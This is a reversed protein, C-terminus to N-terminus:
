MGGILTNANNAWASQFSGTVTYTVNWEIAGVEGTAVQTPPSTDATTVIYIEVDVGSIDSLDGANWTASYVTNDAPNPQSLLVSGVQAGNEYLYIDLQDATKGTPSNRYLVRFEQLGAGSTLDGTPSPFSARVISNTSDSTASLWNADPSDPDDDVDTYAGTLNTLAFVTGDPYKSETAM